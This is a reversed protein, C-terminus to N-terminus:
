SGRIFVLGNDSPPQQKLFRASAARIERKLDGAFRTKGSVQFPFGRNKLVKGSVQAAPM